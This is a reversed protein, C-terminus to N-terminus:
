PKTARQFRAPKGDTWRKPDRGTRAVLSYFTSKTLGLKRWADAASLEGREWASYVSKWESPYQALPRGLHRGRRRVADIGERQREKITEREFQALAGFMTLILQGTPGGTDVGERLSIFKVGKDRLGDVIDLLDRTSRALRDYACVVLTDGDRVFGLVENFLYVPWLRRLVPEPHGLSYTDVPVGKWHKGLFNMEARFTGM